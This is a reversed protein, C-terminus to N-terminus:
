AGRPSSAAGLRVVCRRPSEALMAELRRRKEVDSGCCSVLDLIPGGEKGLPCSLGRPEEESM